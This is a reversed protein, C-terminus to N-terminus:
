DMYGASKRWGAWSDAAGTKISGFYIDPSFEFTTKGDSVENFAEMYVHGVSGYPPVYGGISMLNSSYIHFRDSVRLIEFMSKQWENDGELTALDYDVALLIGNAYKPMIRANEEESMWRLFEFALEKNRSKESVVISDKGALDYVVRYPNGSEDKKAEPVIPSPMLRIEINAKELFEETIESALWCSAPIMAAQGSAFAMQASVADLGTSGYISYDPNAAVLNYWHTWAQKLAPSKEYDFVDASGFSKWTNNFWDLGAIQVWWDFVLNDWLWQTGGSWIFPRVVDGLGTGFKVNDSQIKACLAQLEEYTSPVSWGNAKFMTMNYAIGGASAIQPVKWYNDGIKASDRSSPAIRELYSVDRKNTNDYYVKSGYLENMNAILGQSAYKEWTINHSIYIDDPRAAELWSTLSTVVDAVPKPNVTVGPYDEMFKEAMKELWVKGYGGNFYTINLTSGEEFTPRERVTLNNRDYTAADKVYGYNGGAPGGRTCATLPVIALVVALALIIIKKRM